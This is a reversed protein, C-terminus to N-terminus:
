PVRWVGQRYADLYSNQDLITGLTSSELTEVDM